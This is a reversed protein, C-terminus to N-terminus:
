VGAAMRRNFWILFLASNPFVAAEFCIYSSSDPFFSSYFHSKLMITKQNLLVPCANSCKIHRFFMQQRFVHLTEM